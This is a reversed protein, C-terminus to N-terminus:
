PREDFGYLLEARGPAPHALIFVGFAVSAAEGALVEAPSGEAAIRGEHLLAM